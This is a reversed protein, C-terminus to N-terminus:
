KVLRYKDGSDKIVDLCDLCTVSWYDGSTLEGRLGSYCVSLWYGSLGLALIGADKSAFDVYHVALSDDDLLTALWLETNM